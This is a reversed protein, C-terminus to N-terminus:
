AGGAGGEAARRDPWVGTEDVIAKRRSPSAAEGALERRDQVIRRQEARRPACRSDFDKLIQYCGCSAAELGKRDLIRINGRSYSILKRQQLASAAKTVGVRRVGLMDALFEHTLRFQDSRMRDRTMLLWRALRAEVKHFRNCAATQTVQTTLLHSYRYLERQLSLSQPFEELFRASKMRMAEGTGQVLARVSSVGIGLALPIGVMGERGVLGVELAKHGEVMTLLSVLSNNPFYVHRIPAGPEYLVEGYTLTVPELGALLHQYEERPLAALLGNAAPVRNAATYKLEPLQETRDSETINERSIVAHGAGDGPFGTITLIFRCRGAPSDCACEHRFLTRKGAIVQRIGAAIAIGDVRENGRAQDCVALYNAGETVGAGIGANAAAFAHWAKNAM